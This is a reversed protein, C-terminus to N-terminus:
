GLNKEGIGNELHGVWGAKRGGVVMWDKKKKKWDWEQFNEDLYEKRNRQRFPMWGDTWTQTRPRTKASDTIFSQTNCFDRCYFPNTKPFTHCKTRCFRYNFQPWVFGWSQHARWKESRNLDLFKWSISLLSKKSQCLALQHACVTQNWIVKENKVASM